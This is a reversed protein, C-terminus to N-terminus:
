QSHIKGAHLQYLNPLDFLYTPLSNIENEESDLKQM